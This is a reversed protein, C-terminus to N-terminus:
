LPGIPREGFALPLPCPHTQLFPGPSTCPQVLRKCVAGQGRELRLPSEGFQGQKVGDRQM